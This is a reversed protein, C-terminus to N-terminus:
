REMTELEFIECSFVQPAHEPPGICVDLGGSGYLLDSRSDGILVDNGRGGDQRDDGEGGVLCDDGGQGYLRDDGGLGIIVDSGPTGHLVDDGETGEIVNAEGFGEGCEEPVATVEEGSVQMILHMGPFGLTATSTPESAGCDAAALYNPRTEGNANSGVFFLNGVAQGNPTYIEVVLDQTTPDDVTGSVSVDMTTLAADALSGSYAGIETLNAFTLSAGTPITYLNVEYPQTGGNGTASEIGFRVANVTFAGAIGHDVSLLFRRLYHNDAHGVSNNCSVSNLSTITSTDTSQTIVAPGPLILPSVPPVRSPEAVGVAHSATGFSVKAALAVDPAFATTLAVALAINRTVANARGLDISQWM